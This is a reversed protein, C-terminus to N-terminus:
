DHKEGISNILETQILENNELVHSIQEGEVNYTLKSHPTIEQPIDQGANDYNKNVLM